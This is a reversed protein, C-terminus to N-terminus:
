LTTRDQLSRVEKGTTRIDENILSLINIMARNYIYYYPIMKNIISKKRKM